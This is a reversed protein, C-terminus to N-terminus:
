KTMLKLGIRRGYHLLQDQSLGGLEDLKPLVGAGEHKGDDMAEVAADNQSLAALAAAVADTSDFEVFCFGRNITKERDGPITSLEVYSVGGFIEFLTSVHHRTMRRPLGEQYTVGRTAPASCVVHITKQVVPSAMLDPPDRM